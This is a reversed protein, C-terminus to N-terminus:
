HGVAARGERRLSLMVFGLLVAVTVAGGLRVANM